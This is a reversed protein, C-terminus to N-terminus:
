SHAIWKACPCKRAVRKPLILIKLEVERDSLTKLLFKEMQYLHVLSSTLLTEVCWLIVLIRHPLLFVLWVVLDCVLCWIFVLIQHLLLVVLWVVWDCGIDSETLLKVIWMVSFRNRKSCNGLEEDICLLAQLHSFGDVMICKIM